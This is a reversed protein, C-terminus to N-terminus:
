AQLQQILDLTRNYETVVKILLAKDAVELRPRLQETLEVAVNYLLTFGLNGALGKLTHISRFSLEIDGDKVAQILNQMSKDQPFKKVFYAVKDENILRKCAGSYDGQLQEYLEKVSIM